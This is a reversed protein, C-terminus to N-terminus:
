QKLLHVILKKEGIFELFYVGSYIKEFSIITSAKELHNTLIVKGFIDILRFQSGIFNEGVEITFYSDFINPYVKISNQIEEVSGSLCAQCSDLTSSLANSYDINGVITGCGSVPNCVGNILGYGLFLACAGFDINALNACSDAFQIQTQCSGPTWSTVGGYYQAVCSNSYTISDCGCVPEFLTPCITTSDIQAPNICSNGGNCEGPIWTIVGGYYQAVCSNSYTIGNCGCVPDYNMPCMVTSDILSTNICQSYSSSIMGFLVLFLALPTAITLNLLKIKM